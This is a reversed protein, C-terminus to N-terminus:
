NRCCTQEDKEEKLKKIDKEIKKFRVENEQFIDTLKDIMPFKKGLTSDILKLILKAINNRFSLSTM